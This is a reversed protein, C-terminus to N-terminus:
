VKSPRLAILKEKLTAVLENKKQEINECEHIELQICRSCFDRDCYKCRILAFMRRCRQCKM